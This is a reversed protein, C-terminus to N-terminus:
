GTRCQLINRILPSTSKVLHWKLLGYLQHTVHKLTQHTLCIHLNGMSQHSYWKSMFQTSIITMSHVLRDNKNIALKLIKRAFICYMESKPELVM